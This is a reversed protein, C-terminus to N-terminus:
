RAVADADGSAQTNTKGTEVVKMNLDDLAKVLKEFHSNWESFRSTLLGGSTSNNVLKIQDTMQWVKQKVTTMNTVAQNAANIGVALVGSDYGYKPAM